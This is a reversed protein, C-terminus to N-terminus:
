MMAKLAEAFFDISGFNGSKLALRMAPGRWEVTRLIPVGPAIEEEILFGPIKLRDIAAGSTEGGAVILRRVGLDVLGEALLANATEIAGGSADRGYVGQLSRVKDPAASSTILVPGSGLREAAWALARSVESGASETVLCHADLRLVPMRDEAAAIQELTM